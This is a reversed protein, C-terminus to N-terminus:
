KNNFSKAVARSIVKRNARKARGKMQLLAYGTVTKKIKGDKGIKYNKGIISTM